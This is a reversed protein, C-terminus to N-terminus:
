DPFLEGEMSFASGKIALSRDSIMVLNDRTSLFAANPFVASFVKRFYRVSSSRDGRTAALRNFLLLGSPKLLGALNQLFEPSEFDPPVVDDLFIDMCILDFQQDCLEVYVLADACIVQMPSHLRSLIYKGALSIVEEDIEVATFHYRKGFNRELMWPISGLGLGLILVEKNPPDDLQVAEFARRFNSYREGYSYVANETYLQYEGRSISVSLEPNHISSRQELPIEVLYSLLSRWRPAKM